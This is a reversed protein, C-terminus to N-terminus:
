RTGIEKEGSVIKFATVENWDSVDDKSLWIGQYKVSESKKLHLIKRIKDELEQESHGPQLRIQSVRLM